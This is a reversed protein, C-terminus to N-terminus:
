DLANLVAEVFARQTAASPYLDYVADDEEQQYARKWDDKSTVLEYLDVFKLRHKEAITRAAHALRDSREVASLLPIPSIVLVDPPDEQARALDILVDLSRAFQQPAVGRRADHSGPSIIVLDPQHTALAAAFAPIDASCPVVAKGKREVFRVTSGGKELKEKLLDAYTETERNDKTNAMPDGFLLVNDPRPKLKRVAWKLPAWRRHKDEDELRAVVVVRRGERDVLHGLRPTLRALHAGPRVVRVATRGLEVGALNLRFTVDASSEDEAPLKLPLNIIERGRPPLRLPMSITGSADTRRCVVPLPHKCLNSVKFTLKAPEGEYVVNPCSLMEFSAEAAVHRAARLSLTRKYTGLSREGRFAELVVECDGGAPVFCFPDNGSMTKGAVKWQFRLGEGRTLNTLNLPVMPKRDGVKFAVDTSGITFFPSVPRDVREFGVLEVPVYNSGAFAAGTILAIERDAPRRWGIRIGQADPTEAHLVVLKHVGSDLKVQASHKWNRQPKAHGRATVVLSGDVLLHATGGADVAFEYTGQRVLNLFGSYLTVYRTNHKLGFPNVRNNVSYTGIKGRPKDAALVAKAAAAPTSVSRGKPVAVTAMVLPYASRRWSKRRPRGEPNGYYIYYDATAPRAKFLVTAKNGWGSAYARAPVLKGDADTVVIERGPRRSDGEVLIVAKGTLSREGLLKTPAFFDVPLDNGQPPFELRVTKRYKWDKNWWAPRKGDAGTAPAAALLVLLLVATTRSHSV